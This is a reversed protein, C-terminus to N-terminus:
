GFDFLPFLKEDKKYLKKKAFKVRLFIRGDGSHFGFFTHNRKKNKKEGKHTCNSRIGKNKQMLFIESM